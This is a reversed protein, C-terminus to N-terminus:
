RANEVTRRGLNIWDPRCRIGRRCLASSPLSNRLVTPELGEPAIEGLSRVGKSQESHVIRAISARRRCLVAVALRLCAHYLLVCAIRPPIRVRLGTAAIRLAPRAVEGAGVGYGNFSRRGM